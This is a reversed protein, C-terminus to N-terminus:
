SNESLGHFHSQIFRVMEPIRDLDPPRKLRVVPVTDALTSAKEFHFPTAGTGGLFRQAYSHQLLHVFAERKPLPEVAFEDGWELLYICRLACPERQFRQGAHGIRKGYGEHLRPLEEPTTDLTAAVAEPDLRMQPFGPLVTADEDPPVVVIDDTVLRAGSAYLASATTSKGRRKWGIFAAAGNGLGVASAHLTLHKKQHLAIGTCVGLVLHRVLRRSTDVADDVVIRRGDEVRFGGSHDYHLLAETDTSRVVGNVGEEIEGM